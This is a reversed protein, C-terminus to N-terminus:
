RILSKGTMERPIPIGLLKLMTPAIDQLSGDRLSVGQVDRRLLLFPVPNTTHATLVEGKEDIMEDANGHDATILVVGDKALVAPVVRGLCHDVTNVAKVAAEMVGTHGVMDVNAYNMIIVGFKDAALQELFMDTVQEASMEPQLDYTAVKSSPILIREEDPNPAEVGGNFFFTVHAYKETEAIRLQTIGQRSLVQGLTNELSQPTFAVPVKITKDYLTMCTFKVRPHEHSRVFGDFKDTFVRTLERARDPRFNYFIVADGDAIHAVPEGSQRMIVTPRIFEDTENRAYGLEVAEISSGASLGKGFVIANYAQEVREWRQDRDMAYYRGAVTAVAGCGLADMKAELRALYEKANAPPVDRGDLFAHVFVRDLNERAALELLAFLHEIHSHVGGDSLLGFLHLASGRKKVYEVSELLAKNTFFDKDRIARNIRTFEQYVVRGAGINLHGVESNGMQGEPLGVAEGSCVLACHPYGALYSDMNPTDACAIANSVTEVGLGWGDMIVLVLPKIRPKNEMDM